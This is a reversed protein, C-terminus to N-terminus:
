DLQRIQFAHVQAVGYVNPTVTLTASTAGAIFRCVYSQSLNFEFPGYSHGAISLSEARGAFREDSVFVQLLYTKGSTLGSLTITRATPTGSYYWACSDLMSEFSAGVGGDTYLVSSDSSGSNLGDRTLAAVFLVGNVTQNTTEGLNVAEILSGSTEVISDGVTSIQVPTEWGLTFGGAPAGHGGFAGRRTHIYWSM